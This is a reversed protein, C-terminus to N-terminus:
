RHRGPGALKKRWASLGIADLMKGYAALIVPHPGHTPETDTAAQPDPALERGNVRWERQQDLFSLHIPKATASTWVMTHGRPYDDTWHARPRREGTALAHRAVEALFADITAAPITGHELIAGRDCECLVDIACKCRAYHSTGKPDFPDFASEQVGSADSGIKAKMAFGKATRELTVVMGHTNGMGNWSDAIELRQAKPLDAFDPPLNPPPEPNLVADWNPVDLDALLATWAADLAPNGADAAPDPVIPAGDSMWGLNEGPLGFHRPADRDPWFAVLHARHTGPYPRGADGDTPPLTKQQLLLAVLAEVKAAPIRGNKSVIADGEGVSECDCRVEVGCVCAKVYPTQMAPSPDPVREGLTGVAVGKATWAFEAGERVLRFVVDHEHRPTTRRDRLEVVNTKTPDLAGATSANASATPAAHTDTSGASRCAVALLAVVVVAARM